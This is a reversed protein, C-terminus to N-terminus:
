AFYFDDITYEHQDDGLIEAEKESDHHELWLVSLYDKIESTDVAVEKLALLIRTCSQPDNTSNFYLASETLETVLINADGDANISKSLANIDEINEGDILKKQALHSCIINASNLNLIKVEDDLNSLYTFAEELIDKEYHDNKTCVILKCFANLARGADAGKAFEISAKLEKEGQESDGNELHCLGLFYSTSMDDNKVVKAKKLFEIAKNFDDIKHYHLGLNHYAAHLHDEIADKYEAEGEELVTIAQLLNEEKIEENTNSKLILAAAWNKYVSCLNVKIKDELDSPDSLTAEKAVASAYLDKAQPYLVLAEDYAKLTIKSNAVTLKFDGQTKLQMKSM